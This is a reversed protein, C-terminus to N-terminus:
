SKLYKLLAKIALVLAILGLVFYLGAMISTPSTMFDVFTDDGWSRSSPKLRLQGAM